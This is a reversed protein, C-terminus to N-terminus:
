PTFHDHIAKRLLAEEEGTLKKDLWRARYGRRDLLEWEVEEYGTFDATSPCTSPPGRWAPVRHYSLVRITCPIGALTHSILNM